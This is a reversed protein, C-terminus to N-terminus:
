ILASFRRPYPPITRYTLYTHTIKTRQLLAEVLPDTNNRDEVIIWHVDPVSMLTNAMRTMDAMRTQRPYTPTVIIIVPNSLNGKAEVQM